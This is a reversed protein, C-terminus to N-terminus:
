HNGQAVQADFEMKKKEMITKFTDQDQQSQTKMFADMDQFLKIVAGFAELPSPTSDKPASSQINIFIQVLGDAAQPSLGAALLEARSEEPTKEVPASQATLTMAFILFSVVKFSM